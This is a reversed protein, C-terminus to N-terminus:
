YFVECRASYPTQVTHTLQIDSGVSTFMWVSQHEWTKALSGPTGQVSLASSARFLCVLHRGSQGVGMPFISM